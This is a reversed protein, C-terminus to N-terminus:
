HLKGIRQGQLVEVANFRGKEFLLIVLSGGYAFHGLKDGKQVPKEQGKSIDRFEEEFVVSSITQLGVPIMAVYGFRQTEIIFYGHHFDEFVGFAKNYGPNGNNTLDPLDEMGFYQNNVNEKSEVMRGTVPAHYHHYNPPLLFCALATGGVFQPAYASHDLLEDVNLSMRGKLPIQSDTHLDNNIVNLVGDAPSVIIADDTVGDIPRAGPKVDRIFFENFSRFGGEPYLFEDNDLRPDSLWIDINKLSARSDMFKGREEVFRRTWSLGPEELILRLGHPNKYYLWSFHLIKDLGNETTPLFYYWANLFDFLDERTKGRWPNARGDPLDHLNSFTDDLLQSFSRQTQLLERLERVPPTDQALLNHAVLVGALILKLTKM